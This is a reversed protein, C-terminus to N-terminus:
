KYIVFRMRNILAYMEQKRPLDFFRECTTFYSSYMSDLGQEDIKSYLDDVRKKVDIIEDTNTIELYRLMFGLATLQRETVLDCLGRTDIKEDGVMIFGMDSVVLRESTAGKPYSSFGSACLRKSQSYSAPPIDTNEVKRSQALSKARDSVDCLVFNDMLYVRDAIGLYEGSGGIVLITSVGMSTYLEQVRDTFPTIPEKEILERMTKDRIMFNTASRDEDIFLVRAGNDVAEVINSAQSTSGSAHFTSFSEASSSPLWKIFPSINLSKVCRGDEACITVGTEDTICLERGDGLIHDYIGAAIADLLTSKGSYGGGTIVTVGRKIGMGRVGFLEIEDNPTSVFPVAGNMPLHTERERPLVSGNAIFACYQSTKLYERIRNQLQQLDIAKQLAVRDFDVVFRDIACPLDHCLMQITKKLKGKPLQVQITVCICMQPPPTTGRPLLEVSSGGINEYDKQSCKAFYASNRTIVEGSPKCYYYKGNEDDPRSRNYLEANLEDLYPSLARLCFDASAKSYDDIGLLVTPIIITITPKDQALKHTVTIKFGISENYYTPDYQMQPPDLPRNPDYVAMVGEYMPLYTKTKPEMSLLKNKLRKM